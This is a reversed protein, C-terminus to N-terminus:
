ETYGIIFQILNPLIVKTRLKTYGNKKLTKSDIQRFRYWNETEDVKKVKFKNDIIFKTAEKLTYYDKNLLISQVKYM